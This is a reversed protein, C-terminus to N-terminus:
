YEEGVESELIELASPEMRRIVEDRLAFILASDTPVVGNEVFHRRMQERMMNVKKYCQVQKVGLLKQLRANSPSVGNVIAYVLITVESSDKESALLFNFLKRAQLMWVRKDKDLNDPAHTESGLMENKAEYYEEEGNDNRQPLAGEIIMKKRGDPLTVIRIKRGMVLAISERVIDKILGCNPSFFTGCIMMKLGDSQYPNIRDMFYEKLPKPNNKRGHLYFHGDFQSIIDDDDYDGVSVDNYRRLERKFASEIQRRLRRQEDQTCLKVACKDFWHEWADDSAYIEDNGAM